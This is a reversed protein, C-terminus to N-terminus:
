VSSLNVIAWYIFDKGSVDHRVLQKVVKPHEKLVQRNRSVEEFRQNEEKKAIKQLRTLDKELKKVNQIAPFGISYTQDVLMTQEKWDDNLAQLVPQYYLADHMLMDLVKKYTSNIKQISRCRTESNKLEVLLRKTDREEQFEKIDYYRNMEQQVAVEM